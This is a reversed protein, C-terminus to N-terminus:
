GLLRSRTLRRRRRRRLRHRRHRHTVRLRGRAASGAVCGSPRRAAGPEQRPLSKGGSVPYPNVPVQDALIESAPANVPCGAATVRPDAFSPVPLTPISNDPKAFNFASTLDGTVSRRWSTLNPVEVGFRSEILRLTSTLDFTESAVFGGRSFPSVVLAPIRFGLGIPGRIGAAASPLTPVTLYEGATGAPATPPPVHDFFGGNEDYTVILATKAWLKPNGLLTAVVDYTAREGYAVPAPPHETQVLPALVWSVQPLAGTAVDTDFTGPFTPTFAKEFLSANQTYPKFYALVNDGANGDPNGYVKWSIGRAELQEPLTTWTYAGLKSPRAQVLTTLHPGGHQGAPDLTATMSYLRNPDTPGIVSCHFHDCVTFADALAYYFPIDARTMYGMTLPGNLEGNSQLHEILFRDMRGGNWARHQVGWEHSVDNTCQGGHHETDLRWPYLHGNYGPAPYGPQAFVSLGSGDTLPLVHPDGFGAVGRLSGFYHDFSRNEQILIVIHEIDALQGCAPAAGLAADLLPAPFFQSLALAASGTAGAGLLQRRTLAREGAPAQPPDGPQGSSV